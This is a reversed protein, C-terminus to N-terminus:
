SSLTDGLHRWRPFPLKLELILLFHTRGLHSHALAEQYCCVLWSVGQNWGLSLLLLTIHPGVWVGLCFQSTMFACTKLSSRKYHNKIAAFSVGWHGGVWNVARGQDAQQTSGEKEREWHEDMENGRLWLRWRSSM